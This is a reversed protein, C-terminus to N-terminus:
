QKLQELIKEASLIKQEVKANDIVMCIRRIEDPEEMLDDAIREASQGVAYKKMTLTVILERQGEARGEAREEEAIARVIDSMEKKGEEGEKFLHKRASIKPFKEYNYKDSETFVTMLEAIDSEDKSTANVYIRQLGDDALEGTERIVSDVHYIVKGEKFFDRQSIYIVCVDPINEYKIGLDSINATICSSNYRVRKLHNDDDSKQVEIHCYKGEKMKCLADLVVSKGQLNKIASQPILEEIQM